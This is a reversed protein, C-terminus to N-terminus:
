ASNATFECGGAAVHKGVARSAGASASPRAGACARAAGDERPAAARLETRARPSYKVWIGQRHALVERKLAVVAGGARWGEAGRARGAERGVRSRAARLRLTPDDLRQRGRAGAPRCRGTRPALPCPSSRSLPSPASNQTRTSHSRTARGGHTLRTRSARGWGALSGHLPMFDSQKRMRGALSNLTFEACHHSIM